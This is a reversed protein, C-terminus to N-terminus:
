KLTPAPSLLAIIENLGAENALDLATKNDQNSINRDLGKEILFKVMQPKNGIVAQHLLTNGDQFRITINGGKLILMAAIEVDGDIVAWQLPSKDNAHNANPDAGYELLLAIMAIKKARKEKSAEVQVGHPLFPDEKKDEAMAAHLPTENDLDQAHVNAGKELLLKVIEVRCESIAWHLATNRESNDSIELASTEMLPLLFKVIEIHGNIVALLLSTRGNADRAYIDQKDIDVLSKFIDLNGEIAALHLYTGSEGTLTQKSKWANLAAKQTDLEEKIM